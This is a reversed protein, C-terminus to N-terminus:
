IVEIKWVLGGLVESYIDVLRRKIGSKVNRARNRRNEREFLVQRRLDILDQELKSKEKQYKMETEYAMKELKEINNTAEFYKKEHSAIQKKQQEIEAQLLALETQYAVCSETKQQLEQQISEMEKLVQTITKNRNKNKNKNKDNDDDGDTGPPIGESGGPGGSPSGDGGNSSNNSQQSINPKNNDDQAQINKVIDTISKEEEKKNEIDENKLNELTSNIEDESLNINNPNPYKERLGSLFNSSQIRALEVANVTYATADRVGQFKSGTFQEFEDIKKNTWYGIGTISGGAIGLRTLLTAAANAAM